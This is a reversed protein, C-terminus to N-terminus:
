SYIRVTTQPSREEPYQPPQSKPTSPRSNQRVPKKQASYRKPQLKFVIEEEDSDELEQTAQSSPTQSVNPIHNAHNTIQPATALQVSKATEEQSSTIAPSLSELPIETVNQGGRELASRSSPRDIESLNAANVKNVLITRPRFRQKHSECGHILIRRRKLFRDHRHVALRAELPRFLHYLPIFTFMRLTAAFTQISAENERKKERRLGFSLRRRPFARSQSETLAQWSLM